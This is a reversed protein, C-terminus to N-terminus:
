ELGHKGDWKEFNWKLIINGDVDPCELHDEERLNRWFFGRHM